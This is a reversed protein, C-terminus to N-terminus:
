QSQLESTHEESRGSFYIDRLIDNKLFLPSQIVDDFIICIHPAARFGKRKVTDMQDEYIRQVILPNDTNYVDRKKIAKVADTITPAPSLCILFIRDYYDKLMDPSNLISALITSKGSGTGGVIITNGPPPIAYIEQAPTKKVEDRPSKTPKIVGFPARARTPPAKQKKEQQEEAM